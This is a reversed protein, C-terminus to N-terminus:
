SSNKSVSLSYKVSSTTISSFESTEPSSPFSKFLLVEYIEIVEPSFEAFNVIFCSIVYVSSIVIPSKFEFLPMHKFVALLESISFVKLSKLSKKKKETMTAYFVYPKEGSHYGDASFGIFKFNFDEKESDVPLDTKVEQTSIDYVINENEGM